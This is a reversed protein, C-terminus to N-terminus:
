ALDINQDAGCYFSRRAGYQSLARGEPEDIRLAKHCVIATVLKGLVFERQSPRLGVRRPELCEEVNDAMHLRGTQNAERGDTAGEGLVHNPEHGFYVLPRDDKREAVWRTLDTLGCLGQGPTLGAALKEHRVHLLSYLSVQRASVVSHICTRVLSRTSRHVICRRWHSAM